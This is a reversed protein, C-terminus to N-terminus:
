KNLTATAIQHEQGAYLGYECTVLAHLKFYLLSDVCSKKNFTCLDLIKVVCVAPNLFLHQSWFYSLFFLLLISFYTYFLVACNISWGFILMTGFLSFSTVFVCQCCVHISCVPKHESDRDIYLFVNLGTKFFPSKFIHTSEHPETFPWNLITITIWIGYFIFTCPLQVMSCAM